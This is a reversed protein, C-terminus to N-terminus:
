PFVFTRIFRFYSLLGGMRRTRKMDFVFDFALLVFKFTECLGRIYSAQLNKVLM